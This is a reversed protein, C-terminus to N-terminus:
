YNRVIFLEVAFFHNAELPNQTDTMLEAYPNSIPSAPKESCTTTQSIGYVRKMGCRFEFGAPSIIKVKSNGPMRKKSQFEFRILNMANASSTDSPFIGVYDIQNLDFGPVNKKLHLVVGASLTEARWVNNSIEENDEDYDPKPIRPANWIGFEFSYSKGFELVSVLSLQVYWLGTKADQYRECHTGPPLGYYVDNIPFPEFDSNKNPTYRRQYLSEGCQEQPVFGEPLWVRM